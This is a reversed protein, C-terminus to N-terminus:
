QAWDTTYSQQDLSGQNSDLMVGVLHYHHTLIKRLFSQNQHFGSPRATIVSASSGWHAGKYYFRLCSNEPRPLFFSITVNLWERRLDLKKTLSKIANFTRQFFNLILFNWCFFKTNLHQFLIKLLLQGYKRSTKYNEGTFYCGSAWLNPWTGIFLGTVPSSM